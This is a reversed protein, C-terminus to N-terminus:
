SSFLYAYKKNYEEVAAAVQYQLMDEPIYDLYKIVSKKVPYPMGYIEKGINEAQKAINYAAINEPTPEICDNLVLHDYLSGRTVELTLDGKTTAGLYIDNPYIQGIAYLSRLKEKNDNSMYALSSKLFTQGFSIQSIKM